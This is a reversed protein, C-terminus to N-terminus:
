ANKFGKSQIRRELRQALIMLPFTFVFFMMGALFYYTMPDYTASIISEAERIVEPVAIVSILATDKLLAVASNMLPPVAIRFAQPWVIHIFIQLRNLGLSRGALAQGPDVSMLGARIVEAMYAGANVALTLVAATIPALTLWGSLGGVGLWGEVLRGLQPAGYYVFFLQILVPTGRLFDVVARTLWRLPGVGHHLMLGVPISLAFGLFLSLFAVQLTILFGSGLRRAVTAWSIGRVERPESLTTASEGEELAFWKDHIEEFFGDREMGELAENIAARLDESGTRVPIGMREEYLLSGAPVFPMGAEGIQYMGVLRDTVFGDLRGNEMDTFIDVDGKYTRIAVGPHNDNLYKEFTTGLVVGVRGGRLDEIGGVDDADERDVFLQAGSIYYPRSFDVQEERLPTIAMSGIIADYRGSQLGALIGGWETPVIRVEVGLRRAVERSVDVDFGVLTAEEDYFSFPPYKGTLAVSLEGDDIGARAGGVLLTYISLCLLLRRLVM